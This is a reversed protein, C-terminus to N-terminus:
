IYNRIFKKTGSPRFEFFSLKKLIILMLYYVLFTIIISNLGGRIDMPIHILILWILPEAGEIETIKKILFILLVMYILISLLPGSFGFQHYAEGFFTSTLVFQKPGPYNGTVIETLRWFYSVYPKEPWISRPIVTLPLYYFYQKGYEIETENSNVKEHVSYFDEVSTIEIQSVVTEYNVIDSIAYDQAVGTRFFNAVSLYVSAALIALIVGILKFRRVYFHYYLFPIAVYTMLVYRTHTTLFIYFVVLFYLLIAKSLKGEKAFTFAMMITTIHLANTLYSLAFNFNNIDDLYGGVRNSFLLNILNFNANKLLIFILLIYILCITITIFKRKNHNIRYLVKVTGYSTHTLPVFLIEILLVSIVFSSYIYFLFDSDTFWSQKSDANLFPMLYVLVFSCLYILRFRFLNKKAGFSILYALYIAVTILIITLM